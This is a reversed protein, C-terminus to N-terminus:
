KKNNGELSEIAKNVVRDAAEQNTEFIVFLREPQIEVETDCLLKDRLFQLMKIM